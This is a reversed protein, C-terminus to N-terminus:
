IRGAFIARPLDVGCGFLDKKSWESCMEIESVDRARDVFLIMGLRVHNENRRTCHFDGNNQEMFNVRLVNLNKQQAVKGVRLVCFLSKRM